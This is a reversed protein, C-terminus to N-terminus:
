AVYRCSTPYRHVPIMLIVDQIFIFSSEVKSVAHMKDGDILTFERFFTEQLRLSQDVEDQAFSPHLLLQYSRLLSFVSISSIVHDRLLLFRSRVDAKKAATHM